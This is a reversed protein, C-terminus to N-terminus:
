VFSEYKVKGKLISFEDFTVDRGIMSKSGKQYTCWLKYGNVTSLYEPFM